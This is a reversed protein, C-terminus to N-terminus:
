DLHFMIELAFLVGFMLLLMLILFGLSSAFSTGGRKAIMQFRTERDPGESEVEAIIKRAHALYWSNGCAGCICAIVLTVIRDLAAPSEQQRLVGVFVVEEAISELLVVGGLVVTLKYMKRYPLWLGSLFFAAWNYGASGTAGRLLPAWKKLYYDAKAGVFARLSKEEADEAVDPDPATPPTLPSAYPNEVGHFEDSGFM